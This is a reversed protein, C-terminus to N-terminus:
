ESIQFADNPLEDTKVLNYTQQCLDTELPFALNAKNAVGPM